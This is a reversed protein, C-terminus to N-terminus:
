HHHAHVFGGVIQAFREPQTLMGIHGTNSMQELRAGPLLSEYMKTVHVPVVSDLGEEGTVILAPAALRECDPRFDLSQELRVREAMRSPMMPAGIVRLGHRVMFWLRRRWEPLARAIEPWVRFPAAAIFAPTSLWPRAVYRQQRPSPSWGPAPASTLILASVREPRTAAYHLAIFGGYSVGCLAARALGREEFVADLQQMYNEFGLAPDLKRESGFDGCLTYAITRCRTQLAMLAPQMWEWRGQVGPIVILPPGSGSDFMSSM